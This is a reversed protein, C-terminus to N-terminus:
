ALGARLRIDPDDARFETGNLDEPRERCLWAVMRAPHEPPSLKERPIRSVRNIGSARITEQMGTDVLGPQFGYVRSRGHLEEAAARTLMALGAKSACYASWGELYNLAAGSSVNVVTASAEAPLQRTFAQLARFAGVLNVDICQAWGEPDVEALPGIPEVVGANNVLVVAGGGAEVEGFLAEVSAANAVDMAAATACGGESRVSEALADVQERRRATAVVHYGEGALARVIAAGLGRAAGTVIAAPKSNDM